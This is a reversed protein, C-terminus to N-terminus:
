FKKSRNESHGTSISNNDRNRDFFSCSIAKVAIAFPLASITIPVCLSKCASILKLFRPNIIISSSCRNPTRCFSFNLDSRASISTNVKVAVGIGLVNFIANDSKRSSEIM